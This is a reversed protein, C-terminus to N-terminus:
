PSSPPEANGSGVVDFAAQSYLDAIYGDQLIGWMTNFHGELTIIIDARNSEYDTSSQNRDRLLEFDIFLEEYEEEEVEFTGELLIIGEDLLALFDDHNKSANIHSLSGDSEIRYVTWKNVIDLAKDVIDFVALAEGMEVNDTYAPCTDASRPGVWIHSFYATGGELHNQGNKNFNRRHFTLTYTGPDLHGNEEHRRLNTEPGLSGYRLFNINPDNFTLDLFRRDLFVKDAKREFLTTEYNIAPKALDVKFLNRSWDVPPTTDVVGSSDKDYEAWARMGYTFGIEYDGGDGDKVTFELTLTTGGSMIIANDKTNYGYEVHDWSDPIDSLDLATGGFRETSMDQVAVDDDNTTNVQASLWTWPKTGGASYDVGNITTDTGFQNWSTDDFEAIHRGGSDTWASFGNFDEDVLVVEANASSSCIGSLGASLAVSLCLISVASIVTKMIRM